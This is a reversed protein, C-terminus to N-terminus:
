LILFFRFYFLEGVDQRTVTLIEGTQISIEGSNPQADFDYIAKVRM